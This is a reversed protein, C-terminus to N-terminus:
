KWSKTNGSLLAPTLLIFYFLLLFDFVPIWLTLHHEHLKQATKAYVFLLVILRMLYISVATEISLHLIIATLFSLYFIFHSLSLGGLFIKHMSKYHSGTTNHRYKIKYYYTIQTESKSYMFCSKELCITTNNKTSVESMFLDDDGSTIHAHNKFGENDVYLSKNYILNRGVGMYPFGWIAASFYQIATYVTEFRAFRNLYKNKTFFPGYGLGIQKKEGIVAQMGEIWHKSAPQCDADTLLLLEYKSAEIGQSLAYKKGKMERSTDAPIHLVRLHTYKKQFDSLVQATGDTSGDNVVLVEYDFYEQRLVHPLHERLNEEENKACIIVSVPEPPTNPKTQKKPNYFAFRMFIIGWYILQIIGSILLVSIIIFEMHLTSVELTLQLYFRM